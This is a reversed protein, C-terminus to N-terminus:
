QGQRLIPLYLAFGIYAKKTYHDECKRLAIINLLKSYVMTTWHRYILMATDFFKGVGKFGDLSDFTLYKFKAIVLAATLIKQQFKAQYIHFMDFMIKTHFAQTWALAM